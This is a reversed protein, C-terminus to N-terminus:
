APYESEYLVTLYAYSGFTRASSAPNISQSMTIWPAPGSLRIGEPYRLQIVTDTTAATKYVIYGSTNGDRTFSGIQFNVFPSVGDTKVFADIQYIRIGQAPPLVTQFTYTDGAVYVTGGQNITFIVYGNNYGTGVTAASM